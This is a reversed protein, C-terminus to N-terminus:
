VVPGLFTQISSREKLVKPAGNPDSATVVPPAVPPNIDGLLLLPDGPSVFLYYKLCNQITPSELHEKRFRIIKGRKIQLISLWSIHDEPKDTELGCCQKGKATLLAL